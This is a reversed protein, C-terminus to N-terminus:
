IDSHISFTCYPIKYNTNIQNVKLKLKPQLIADNFVRLFNLRTYKEFLVIIKSSVKVVNCNYNILGSQILIQMNSSQFM